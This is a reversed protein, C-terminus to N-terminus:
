RCCFDILIFVKKAVVLKVAIPNAWRAGKLDIHIPRGDRARILETKEESIRDSWTLYVTPLCQPQKGFSKAFYRVLSAVGQGGFAAIEATIGDDVLIHADSTPAFKDPGLYALDAGFDDCKRRDAYRELKSSSKLGDLLVVGNPPARVSLLSSFSGDTAGRRKEDAFISDSYILVGGNQLAIMTPFDDNWSNHNKKITATFRTCGSIITSRPEHSLECGQAPVDMFLGVNTDSKSLSLEKTKMGFTYTVVPENKADLAISTQAYQLQQAPTSFAAGSMVCLLLACCKQLLKYIIHM